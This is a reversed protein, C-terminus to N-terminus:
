QLFIESILKLTCPVNEHKLKEAQLQMKNKEKRVVPDCMMGTEYWRAASLPLM